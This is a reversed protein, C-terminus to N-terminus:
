MNSCIAMAGTRTCPLNQDPDFYHVTGKPPDCVEAGGMNQCDMGNDHDIFHGPQVKADSSFYPDVPVKSRTLFSYKWGYQLMCSRYSASPKASQVGIASDCTATDVQLQADIQANSLSPKRVYDYHATYDYTAANAASTVVVLAAFLAIHKIAVYKM